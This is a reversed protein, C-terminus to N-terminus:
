FNELSWANSTGSAEDIAVLHGDPSPIAWAIQNKDDELLLYSSGGLTVTLLATKGALDISSVLLSKGDASWDASRLGTRGKVALNHTAGTSISRLRIVRNDPRYDIIALQSGDPALSWDIGLGTTEITAVESREGSSPDFRRFVVKGPTDIGYLCLTSRVRACQLNFIHAERLVLRPAGGSLPVAFIGTTDEKTHGPNSLYLLETGQSNLRPIM